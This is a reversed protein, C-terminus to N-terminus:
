FEGQTCSGGFYLSTYKEFAPEEWGHAILFVHAILDCPRVKNERGGINFRGGGGWIDIGRM